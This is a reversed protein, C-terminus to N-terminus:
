EMRLYVWLHQKLILIYLHLITGQFSERATLLEQPSILSYLFHSANSVQSSDVGKVGNGVDVM